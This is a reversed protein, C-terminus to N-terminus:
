GEQDAPAGVFRFSTPAIAGADIAAREEDATVGDLEPYLYPGWEFHRESFPRRLAENMDSSSHFGEEAAWARFLQTAGLPEGRSRRERLPESRERLWNHDESGPPLRDLCWLATRDDFRDWAFEVVVVRGSPALLGAIKKVAGDLDPIHHLSVIAVVADFSGPRDFSELGVPTLLPDDPAEPDIGQAEYAADALHHCLWGDGCGVELIRAPPAPLHAEVFGAVERQWLDLGGKGSGAM